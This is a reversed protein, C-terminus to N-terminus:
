RVMVKRLLAKIFLFFSKLIHYFLNYVFEDFRWDNDSFRFPTDRSQNEIYIHIYSLRVISVTQLSLTPKILRVIANVDKKGPIWNPIYQRENVGIRVKEYLYEYDQLLYDNLTLKHQIELKQIYLKMDIDTSAEENNVDIELTEGCPLYWTPTSSKTIRTRPAGSAIALIMSILLCGRSVFM